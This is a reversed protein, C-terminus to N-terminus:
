MKGETCMLIHKESMTQVESAQIAMMSIVRIRKGIMITTYNGFIFRNEEASFTMPHRVTVPINANVSPKVAEPTFRQPRLFLEGTILTMVGVM